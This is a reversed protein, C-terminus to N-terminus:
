QCRRQVGPGMWTTCIPAADAKVAQRMGVESLNHAVALFFQRGHRATSNFDIPVCRVRCRLPHDRLDPTM